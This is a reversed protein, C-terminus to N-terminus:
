TSDGGGPVPIINKRESPSAIESEASKRGPSEEIQVVNEMTIRRQNKSDGVLLVPEEGQFSIGMVQTKQQSSVPVSVGRENTAIVRLFYNGAPAPFGSDGKGDWVFSRRGPVMEGLDERYVTEGRESILEVEVNQSKIPLDFSLSANQGQIHNFRSQDVTVTKGIMSTMALRELPKNQTSMKGLAQNLNTLQEVSTIQAMEAGLKDAEFPKTPDQHRMQTIMIKLFDDKDLSNKRGEIAAPKKGYQTQIQQWVEKFQPAEERRQTKEPQPKSALSQNINM